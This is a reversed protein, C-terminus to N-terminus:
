SSEKELDARHRARRLHPGPQRHAPHDRGARRDAGPRLHGARRPTPLERSTRPGSRSTTSTSATPSGSSPVPRTWPPRWATRRRAPPRTCCGTSPPRRGASSPTSTATAAPGPSGTTRVTPPRASSRSPGTSGSICLDAVLQRILVLQQYDKQGFIAIDPRVLGFLKAVVTLVGRFHGPRTRGELIEALPGPDVTVAADNGDRPVGGPYMEAVTPAFVVDAGERGCVELDDDFTRPYRDLDENPGFQLPNVFISVVVAGNEGARERALRVLGAHGEHLAGMTPVLVVDGAARKAALLTM